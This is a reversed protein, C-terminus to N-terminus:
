RFIVNKLFLFSFPTTGLITIVKAIPALIRFNQILVILLWTEIFYNVVSFLFFMIPQKWSYRVSNFVYNKRLLFVALTVVVISIANAIAISFNIVILFNFIIFNLIFSVVGFIYHKIFQIFTIKCLNKKFKKKFYYNLIDYLNYFLQM